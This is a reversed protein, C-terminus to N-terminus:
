LAGEVVIDVYKKLLSNMSWVIVAQISKENKNVSKMQASNLIASHSQFSKIM